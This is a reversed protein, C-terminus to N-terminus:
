RKIEEPDRSVNCLVRYPYLNIVFLIDLNGKQLDKNKTYRCVNINVALRQHVFYPFM